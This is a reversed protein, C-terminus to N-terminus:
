PQAEIREIAGRLVAMRRDIAAVVEAGLGAPRQLLEIVVLASRLAALAAPDDATMAVPPPPPRKNWPKFALLTEPNPWSGNFCLARDDISMHAPPKERPFKLADRLRMAEARDDIENLLWMTLAARMAEIGGDQNSRSSFVHVDFHREAAYLFAMAGPVPPDCVVGAGKWGSTYSHLVGDFDVSLIPKRWGAGNTSDTM